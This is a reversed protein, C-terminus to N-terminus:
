EKPITSTTEAIGITAAEIGNARSPTYIFLFVSLRKSELSKARNIRITEM